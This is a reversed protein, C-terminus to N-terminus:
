GEEEARPVDEAAETEGLLLGRCADFDAERAESILAAAQSRLRAATEEMQAALTRVENAQRRMADSDREKRTLPEGDRAPIAADSRARPRWGAVESRPIAVGGSSAWGDEGFSGDEFVDGSELAIDFRGASQPTGLRWWGPRPERRIEPHTAKTSDSSVTAEQREVEVVPEGKIHGCNPCTVRGCGHCPAVSGDCSCAWVECAACEFVVAGCEPCKEGPRPEAADASM